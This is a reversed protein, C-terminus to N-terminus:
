SFKAVLQNITVVVVAASIIYSLRYLSVSAYIISIAALTFLLASVFRSLKRSSYPVGPQWLVAGCINVILSPIVAPDKELCVSYHYNRAWVLLSPIHLFALMSWLLFLTVHFHITSLLGIEKPENDPLAVTKDSEDSSSDNEKPKEVLAGSDGGSNEGEPASGTIEEKQENGESSKNEQKSKQTINKVKSAIFKLSLHFIDELYEEYMNSIKLFYFITGLTLSLAGSTSLALSVLLASALIPVQHLISIVWESWNVFSTITKAIFKLAMKHAAKGSIVVGVYCAIGSSYVVIIAIGYMLISMFFFDMNLDELAFFDPLPLLHIFFGLGFIKSGLITAQLILYYRRVASCVASHFFVCEGENLHLGQQRVTLLLVAVVYAPLVGTFYLVVQSASAILSPKITVRYVCSPDLNLLVYPYETENTSGRRASTLTLKASISMKGNMYYHYHQAAWPFMLSIVANNKTGKCSLAEVGLSYAHWITEFGVLNIKYYVANEKTEQIVTEKSMYYMSPVTHNIVRSKEDHVDINVQVYGELRPVKVIVHTFDKAKYQLLNLHVFKRKLRTSGPIPAIETFNSLNEGNECIRVSKHIVDASCVFIWDKINLNYAEIFAVAYDPDNYLRIMIYSNTNVGKVHVVSFQNLTYENWQAEKDFSVFRSHQNTAFRKGASRKLLHYKMISLRTDHDTTLQKTKLDVCDFLARVITLVLQKCWLISLHDTSCWVGPVATSVVNIHGFNDFVLDSRVLIDRDGGGISVLTTNNIVSSNKWLKDVKKYFNAIYLDPIFVPNKLPAALTILLQVSDKKFEPDAFVAKSIVGGVSHGILIVSTPSTPQNKPYFSLIKTICHQVFRAQGELTAGYVASQDENFDVMFYDFYFPTRSNLAKRLSVSALSRGQKYSGSNGPVFLVPIGSFKMKRLRETHGGEAYGFLAYRPHEKQVNQPLSIEVFQPFEFMYTMECENESLNTLINHIGLIYFTFIIFSLVVVLNLPVSYSM